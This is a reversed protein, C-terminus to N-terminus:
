EGEIWFRAKIPTAPKADCDSDMLQDIISLPMGVDSIPFFDDEMMQGEFQVGGFLGLNKPSVSANLLGRKDFGNVVQYGWEALEIPYEVWHGVKEKPKCWRYGSLIQKARVPTCDLISEVGQKGGLYIIYLDNKEVIRFEWDGEPKKLYPLESEKFEIAIGKEVNQTWALTDIWCVPSVIRYTRLQFFWRKKEKPLEFDTRLRYIRGCDLRDCHMPHWEGSPVLRILSKVNDIMFDQDASTLSSFRALNAKLKEVMKEKEDM